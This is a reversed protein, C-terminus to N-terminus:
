SIWVSVELILVILIIGLFRLSITREHILKLASAHPREETSLVKEFQDKVSPISSSTRVQFCLHAGIGVISFTLSLQCCCYISLKLCNEDIKIPICLFQGTKAFIKAFNM